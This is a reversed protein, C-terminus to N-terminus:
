AVRVKHGRMSETFPVLIKLLGSEFKAKAKKANVQHVMSYCSEYRFDEGEASVCFGYPGMELDVTEKRAGALDVEIRLGTDDKNHSVNVMPMLIRKEM